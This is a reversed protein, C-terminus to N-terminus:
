ISSDVHLRSSLSSQTSIFVTYEPFGDRFSQIFFESYGLERCKQEDMPGVLLYTNGSSTQVCRNDIRVRINSSHWPELSGPKLGEVQVKNYHNTRRLYWKHLETPTKEIKTTATTTIDTTTSAVTSIAAASSSITPQHITHTSTLVGNENPTVVKQTNEINTAGIKDNSNNQLEQQVFLQPQNM